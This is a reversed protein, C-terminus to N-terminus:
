AWMQLTGQLLDNYLTVLQAADQRNAQLKALKRTLSRVEKELLGERSLNLGLPEDQPAAPDMAQKEPLLPSALTTELAPDGNAPQLPNSNM